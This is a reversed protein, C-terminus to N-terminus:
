SVGVAAEPSVPVDDNSPSFIDGKQWSEVRNRGTNKAMYLANDARKLADDILADGEDFLAVGISVSFRIPEYGKWDMEFRAGDITERLREALSYADGAGTMPLLVAFEEGGIRAFVDSKRFVGAGAKAMATLVIDGADHGYNDNVRKFHDIDIMLVALPREYRRSLAVEQEAREMFARRNLLGTLQDTKAQNHLQDILRAQESIDRVVATYETAGDVDIKSISIEVPFTGGDKRLGTIRGGREFMQRSQIPSSRFQSVQQEHKDRHREPILISLPEGIVEEADYGFMEEAASNFLCIRQNSDVTIIGDYASQIVASFRVNAVKLKNELEVKETIDLCTLLIATPAGSDDMVPHSEIRWWRTGDDMDLPQIYEVPAATNVSSKIHESLQRWAYRPFVDRLLRDGTEAKDIKVMECFRQNCGVLQGAVGKNLRVVAISTSIAEIFESLTKQALTGPGKNKVSL